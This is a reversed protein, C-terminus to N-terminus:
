MLENLKGTRYGEKDFEVRAFGIKKLESTVKDKMVDQMLLEVQEPDVEVSAYDGFHRVRNGVFGCISLFAEAQEIMSLKEITIEQNYPIRSALCAKSPIDWTLLQQERSVERIDAKTFGLENFPSLVGLEDKAKAGPRYDTSDDVNSGDVVVEAGFEKAFDIIQKFLIKKCIYCRDAPNHKFASIREFGIDICEFNLDFQEAVEFALDIEDKPLLPSVMMVGIADEGLADCAAKLLLTSDVGGSFAVVVRDYQRMFDVLSEFSKM